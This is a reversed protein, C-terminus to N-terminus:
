QPPRLRVPPRKKGPQVGDRNAVGDGMKRPSYYRTLWQTLGDLGPLLVRENINAQDLKDRVEGKLQPPVIIRHILDSHASLWATVSASAKSMVSFLASQNVIREDLSPPEFFAIFPSRSLNELQTLTPAARDLMEITLVDSDEDKLAQRLIAPLHRKIKLCNVCWIAAAASWHDASATAFHLAVYPSFTWDLLRTPLGHHQALAMWNWLSDVNVASRHAYKRFNRLLSRERREYGHGLRTLTTELSHTANAVGRFVFPSRFRQLEDQWAGHYLRSQLEQWNRVRVDTALSLM